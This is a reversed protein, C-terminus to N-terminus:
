DKIYFIAPRDSNVLITNKNLEAQLQEFSSLNESESGDQTFISQMQLQTTGIPHISFNTLPSSSDGDLSGIISKVTSNQPHNASAKLHDLKVTVIAGDSFSCM